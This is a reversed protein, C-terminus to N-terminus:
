FKLGEEGLSDVKDRKLGKKAEDKMYEEYDFMEGETPSIYKPAQFADHDIIVKEDKDMFFKPSYNYVAPVTETKRDKNYDSYDDIKGFKEDLIQDLTKDTAPNFYNM